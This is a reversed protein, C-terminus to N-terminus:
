SAVLSLVERVMTELHKLGRILDAYQKRSLHKIEVSSGTPVGEELDRLQQALVHTLLRNHLEILRTADGDALRGAAVADRLREPTARSTSGVRLALTRAFSVLPLTGDRKLNIRGADVKLRGFLSFRPAVAQVSQAMLGIFARTTSATAIATKQLQRAFDLNGAVPRLDFFIDVNLLDQPRARQLWDEIRRQWDQLSGRWQASSVMVDGQCRPVGAADLIDAMIEGFVAFWTDDEATGSHILANDQDASLLSEGRGGSGLVLVCWPAPPSGKGLAQMREISLQAVRATLAQLETSIVRAVEVGALGESALRAAVSTVHAFAAALAPTDQAAQLADNLVDSGRARHQLLDRQSVMGVPIGSENVICLHRISTRDMRGLARYLMEDEHMCEVPSSMIESVSASDFDLTGTATVRLLDNETIIGAPLKGEEGILLAGVHHRVMAQAAERLRTQASVVRLPSNMLEGLRRAFVYSDIRPLKPLPTEILEDPTTFWGSQAQRLTLDQRQSALSQAEGLTRIEKDRLLPILQTWAQATALCDGMATHRNQITVGLFATVTELGLDPLSPRLAGLLQGIDIVAPEHWALGLRAFEHRLIAIDFGINHGVVVRDNLLEQLSAALEALGPADSVTHDHLGHIASSSAPIPMNPNVLAELRPTTLLKDGEMALAAIQIVRDVKVNLGTTELDVVLAPLAIIPTHTPPSFM